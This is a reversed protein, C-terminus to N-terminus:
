KGEMRAELAAIREALESTEIAKRQAELLAVIMSGEDPSIAGESVQRGIDAIAGPLEAATTVNPLDFVVRGGRRPPWVRSLIPVAAQLDGAKAKNIVAKVIDQAAEEGLKDLALLAKARSGEPRGAPNGSQGPKFRTDTTEAM